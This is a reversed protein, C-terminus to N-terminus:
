VVVRINMRELILSVATLTERFSRFFHKSTRYQRSKSSTYITPINGELNAIREDRDASRGVGANDEISVM